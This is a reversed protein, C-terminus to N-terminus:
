EKKEESKSLMEVVGRHAVGFSKPQSIDKKDLDEKNDLMNLDASYQAHHLRSQKLKVGKKFM